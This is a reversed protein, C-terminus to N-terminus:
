ATGGHWGAHVNSLILTKLRALHMGRCPEFIFFGKFVNSQCPTVASFAGPPPSFFINIGAKMQNRRPLASPPHSFQSM